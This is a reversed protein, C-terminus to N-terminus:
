VWAESPKSPVSCKEMGMVSSTCGSWRSVTLAVWASRPSVEEFHVHTQVGGDLHLVVAVAADEM